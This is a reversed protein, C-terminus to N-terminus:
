VQHVTDTHKAYCKIMKPRRGGTLIFKSVFPANTNSGAGVISISSTDSSVAQRSSDIHLEASSETTSFCVLLIKFIIPLNHYKTIYFGM